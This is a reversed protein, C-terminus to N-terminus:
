VLHLDQQAQYERLAAALDIARDHPYLFLFRRPALLRVPKGAKPTIVVAIRLGWFGAVGDVHVDSIEEWPLTMMVAGRATTLRIGLKGADLRLVQWPREPRVVDCSLSADVDRSTFNGM